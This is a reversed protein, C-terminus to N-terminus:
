LTIQNWQINYNNYCILLYKSHGFPGSKKINESKNQVTQIKCTTQKKSRSHTQQIWEQIVYDQHRDM